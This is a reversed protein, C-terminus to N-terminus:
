VPQLGLLLYVHQLVSPGYFMYFHIYNFMNFCDLVYLPVLMKPPTDTTLQRCRYTQGTLLQISFNRRFLSFCGVNVRKIQSTLPTKILNM